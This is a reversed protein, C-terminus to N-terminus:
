IAKGLYEGHYLYPEGNTETKVLLVLEPQLLGFAGDATEGDPVHTAWTQLTGDTRQVIGIALM